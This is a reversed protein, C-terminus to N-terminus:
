KLCFVAYSIRVHSSNLRTSKRDQRSRLQPPPLKDVAQQYHNRADDCGCGALEAELATIEPALPVPPADTPRIECRVEHRSYPARWDGEQEWSLDYGDALLAQRLEEFHERPPWRGSM